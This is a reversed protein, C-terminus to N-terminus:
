LLTLPEFCTLEGQDRRSDVRHGEPPNRQDLDGVLLRRFGSKIFFHWFQLKIKKKCSVVGWLESNTPKFLATHQAKKKSKRDQGVKRWCHLRKLWTGWPPADRIIDHFSFLHWATSGPSLLSALCMLFQSSFSTRRSSRGGKVRRSKLYNQGQQDRPNSLDM